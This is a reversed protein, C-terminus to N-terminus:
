GVGIRQRTEDNATAAASKTELRNVREELRTLTADFSIDFQHGTSQIEQVQGRLAKLEALVADDRGNAAALTRGQARAPGGKAWAITAIIGAFGGCGSLIYLVPALDGLHM